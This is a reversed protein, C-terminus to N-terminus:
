SLLLAILLIALGAVIAILGWMWHHIRDVQGLDRIDDALMAFGSVLADIATAWASEISRSTKLAIDALISVLAQYDGRAVAQIADRISPM